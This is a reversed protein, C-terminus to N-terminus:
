EGALAELHRLEARRQARRILAVSALVLILVGLAGLLAVVVGFASLSLIAAIVSERLAPNLLLALSGAGVLAVVLGWVIAGTRIRPRPLRVDLETETSTM